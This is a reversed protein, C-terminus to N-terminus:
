STETKFKLSLEDQEKAQSQDVQQMSTTLYTEEALQPTPTLNQNPPKTEFEV